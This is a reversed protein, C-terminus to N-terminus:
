PPTIPPPLRPRPNPHRPAAAPHPLPKDGPPAPPHYPPYPNRTGWITLRPAPDYSGTQWLGGGGTKWANTDDKWTESGKEGPKPVAYWRWLEKGTRADLGALWGRTADGAGNAILVKGDVALPAA